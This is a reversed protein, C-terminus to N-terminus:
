KLINFVTLVVVSAIVVLIIFILLKMWWNNKKINSNLEAIQEFDEDSFNMSSTFFSHDLTTKTNEREENKKAEELISKISNNEDVITNDSRLESLIDLGLEKDSLKNLKSTNAIKDILQELEPDEIKQKERKEKFENIDFNNLIHYDEKPRNTKAKNLVDRIDYSKEESEFTNFSPRTDVAVEKTRFDKQKHYEERNKLMKKVKTIDVENSRDITAIGEINSYESIDYISKYLDKNRSSRKEQNANAKYYREMRSMSDGIMIKVCFMVKKFM